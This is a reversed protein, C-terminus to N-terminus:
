KLLTELQLIPNSRFGQLEELNLYLGVAHLAALVRWISTRDSLEIAAFSASGSLLTTRPLLMTAALALEEELRVSKGSRPMPSPRAQPPSPARLQHRLVLVGHATLAQVAQDRLATDGTLFVYCETGHPDSQVTWRDTAPSWPTCRPPPVGPDTIEISSDDRLPFVLDGWKAGAGGGPMALRDCVIQVVVGNQFVDIFQPSQGNL